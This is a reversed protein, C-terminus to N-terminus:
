SPTKQSDGPMVRLSDSDEHRTSFETVVSDELAEIQHPLLRPIDIVDGETMIKSHISADTTDIYRFLIRGLSIVFTEAKARHMHMSLRSGAKFRLLKGCYDLNVVEIEEGWGKSTRPCSDLHRFRPLYPSQAPAAQCREGRMVAANIDTYDARDSSTMPTSAPLAGYMLSIGPHGVEGTRVPEIAPDGPPVWRYIGSTHYASSDRNTLVWGPHPQRSSMPHDPM